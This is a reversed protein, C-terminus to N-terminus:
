PTVTLTATKSATGLTATITVSTNATPKTPVISFTGSTAGAAITISATVPAVTTNSSKLTIKVGSPGAPGSLTVTGTVSNSSNGQVTSASLSLGTLTPATVTLTATKSVGSTGTLTVSTNSAVAATTVTATATTAGPAVTISSVSFKAASTNSSGLTVVTGSPGAPANLTATLTPNTVGGVMSTSSVSVASLVAPNVTCTATASSGAGSATVTVATVASVASETFTFTGSTKGSAITISASSIKLVTSSASLTVVVGASPAAGSLTVTGTVATTTGGYVSTSSLSLSKVTLATITLGATTSGTGSAAKITASTSATVASTSVTFTATTAGSAVTATAPVTATTSNSSLNVVVGATPAKEAITVTGTVSTGGSVSSSSLTLSTPHPITLALAATASSGTVSATVTASTPASVASTTATFTATSAGAAVTVSAPVTVATSSSALTVAQGGAAAATSLTVTGTIATGNGGEITSASLTLSSITAAKVGLVQNVLGQFNLAGLGTVTDWGAAASSTSGSPLTGNNGSTVDFLISSNGNYGYLLDNIRGFRQKGLSNAALGGGAIISQEALALSAAVTPSAASTGGFGSYVGSTSITFSSYTGAALYLTYGTNPDANASVDPVLRFNVGSPGVASQYSPKVNFTAATTTQWGGGSGTWGTETTRTGTTGTTVSTGGVILVEPELDPYGYTSITTGSDGSAALYTIGQASMSLHLNHVATLSSSATIGWGYSETIIDAKNDNVEQTLVNILDGNYGDYIIISALPAVALTCQIDLDGEGSQTGAGSGGDLKTVTVNSLAGASPVPLGYYSIFSSANSLRFGDWSSIGITRGAGTTGGNFMTATSYLTRVMTPTLTHGKPRTFNEMGSIDSVLGAVEAPVTPSGMFSFREPAAADSPEISQYQEFSVGFVKSANAVTTDALISLRNKSELKVSMGSAKLFNVVKAVQAQPLGFRVGVQEPTLFHRYNPSKPNSVSAVFQEVAAQNAYPLSVALHLVQNPDVAGVHIAREIARPPAIDLPVKKQDVAHGMLPMVLIPTCGALRRLSIKM